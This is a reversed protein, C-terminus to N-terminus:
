KGRPGGVARGAPGDSAPDELGGSAAEPQTSVSTPGSVPNSGSAFQSGVIVDTLIKSTTKATLVSVGDMNDQIEIVKAATRAVAAGPTSTKQNAGHITGISFDDQFPFVVNPNVHAKMPQRRGSDQSLLKVWDQQKFEAVASMESQASPSTVAKLKSDWTCDGIEHLLVQSFARDSLKRYFRKAGPNLDKWYFNCWAAIQVNMREALLEAEATNPIVADVEGSPRQSLQLFLPAKNELTIRYLLNCLTLLIISKGNAANCLSKSADLMNIGNLTISTLSLHYNLHGQICRHLRTCNSLPANNGLTGTFKAFKGFYKAELKMRHVHASLYKFYNIDEKAVEFHFAKKGHEKYHNYGKNNTSKTKAPLPPVNLRRTFHPVDRNEFEEPLMGNQEINDLATDLMQKTNSINSAQDMGNCVFLLTLPMKTEMGQHQKKQLNNSGLCSFEFSVWNVIEEMNVQSKLRFRAYVDNRGKEKKNFVWSGRSIMIYQSLKTFNTPLDAKSSIYHSKDETILISAIQATNDVYLIERLLATVCKTFLNMRKDKAAGTPAM